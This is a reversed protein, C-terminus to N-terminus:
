NPEPQACRWRTTPILQGASSPRNSPISSQTFVPALSIKRVIIRAIIIFVISLAWAILVIFRSSFLERIFFMYIIVATMGASCALIIKSIEDVIKRRNFSYLGAASFFLIMVTAAIIVFYFYDGFTLDFTVPRIEQATSGFRIWYACFGAVILTFYDVPIKLFTFFLESNKKM